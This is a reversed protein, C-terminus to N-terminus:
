KVLWVDDEISGARLYRLLIKSFTGNKLYKRKSIFEIAKSVVKNNKITIKVKGNFM